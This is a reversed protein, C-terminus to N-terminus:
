VTTKFVKALKNDADTVLIQSNEPIAYSIISEKKNISINCNFM